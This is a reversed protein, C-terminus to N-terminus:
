GLYLGLRIKWYPVKKEFHEFYVKLGEPNQFTAKAKQIKEIEASTIFQDLKIKTGSEHMKIFHTVVTNKTIGRKQAIESVSFGEEFLQFSREHTAVTNELADVHKAIIKLFIEAYKELKAKGVGSIQSFEEINKPLKHEMDELSADSFVVYAPVGMETAIKLRQAKLKDFLDARKKSTVSKTKEKSTEPQVM